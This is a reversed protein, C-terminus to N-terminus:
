PSDEDDLDSDDGGQVSLVPVDIAPAPEAEQRERLINRLQSEFSVSGGQAVASAAASATASANVTVGGRNPRLASIRATLV